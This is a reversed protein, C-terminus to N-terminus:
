KRSKIADSIKDVSSMVAAVALIYFIFTAFFNGWSSAAFQLIELM